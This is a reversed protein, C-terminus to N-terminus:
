SRPRCRRCMKVCRAMYSCTECSPSQPQSGVACCAWLTGKALMTALMNGSGQRARWAASWRAAGQNAPDAGRQQAKYLVGRFGLAQGVRGAAEAQKSLTHTLSTTHHEQAPRHTAQKRTPRRKTHSQKQMGNNRGHSYKRERTRNRISMHTTARGAAKTHLTSHDTGTERHTNPSTINRHRDIHKKSEPECKVCM